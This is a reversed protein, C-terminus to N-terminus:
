GQLSSDFAYIREAYRQQIDAVLFESLVWVTEFETRVEDTLQVKDTEQFRGADLGERVFALFHYSRFLINFFRRHLPFLWACKGM